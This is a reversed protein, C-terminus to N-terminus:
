IAQGLRPADWGHELRGIAERLAERVDWFSSSAVFVGRYTSVRLDCRLQGADKRITCFIELPESVALAGLQARLEDLIMEPLPAQPVLVIALPAAM